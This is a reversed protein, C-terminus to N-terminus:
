HIPTLTPHAGSSLKAKHDQSQVGVDGVQVHLVDFVDFIVQRM